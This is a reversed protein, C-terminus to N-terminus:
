STSKLDNMVGCERKEYGFYFRVESQALENDHHPFCLDVGGSHIDMNDGLIESAMVSCEIHWGPRGSGWPSDWAPEGAKSKKWLAFDAPDRKDGTVKSLSGEGEDLLSSNGKATPELKPYEHKDSKSFTNTDFYVSGNSPYAYGNGVIKEIFRVNEPIYESVRTIVDARRINLLEMDKYFENEWYSAFDRFIKHDTVELKYLSDLYESYVDKAGDFLAHVSEQTTNKNKLSVNANKLAVFTKEATKFYLDLKPDDIKGVTSAFKLWDNPLFGNTDIVALKSQVYQDFATQVTTIVDPTLILVKKKERLLLHQQRAALIIKDDVDTINMVYTVDYGFYDEMIRRLIDFSMYTRAHGMHSADYVTPGCCYWTVQKGNKPEFIDETKTLSNKIKLVPAKYSVNNASLQSPHIWVPKVSKGSTAM